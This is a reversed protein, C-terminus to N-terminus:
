IFLHPDDKDITFISINILKLLDIEITFGFKKISKNTNLRFYFWNIYSDPGINFYAHLERKSTIKIKMRTEKQLKLKEETKVFKAVHSDKCGSGSIKM